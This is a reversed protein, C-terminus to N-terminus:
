EQGAVLEKLTQMLTGEVEPATRSVRGTEYGGQEYAITTGIYGPGQDGYAAMCVFDDLAMKQAALQYEVFLEGPMHIVQAPGIKLRTIDITTGAQTRKLYDLDRAARIRETVRAKPDKLIATLKEEDLIDRLPLLVPKVKWSVDKATVPTKKTTLWAQQMGDALRQALLPRNEPDGNNYKGAGINGGAGDFHIQLVGPLQKENLGRALGVTDCSIGGRGYYSQPHTAYYSLVVLPEDGNWLSLLRVFPDITGEPAAIAAKNRSSSFRVIKVNGDPGLIRRNSAFQKVKGKGTGVHTVPRAQKLSQQAAEITRQMVDQLYAEQYMVGDLGNEKLRQNASIDVGPADHQHLCHVACHDPTTGLAASLQKKWEDQAGNNAGVWDLALLVIPKDAGLLIMGRASLPDVVKKAPSIHGYCLPHGIPPTIDIAFSAVQLTQQPTQKASDGAAVPAVLILLAFLCVVILRPVHLPSM